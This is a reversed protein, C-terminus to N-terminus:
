DTALNKQVVSRKLMYCVRATGYVKRECVNCIHAIKSKVEDGGTQKIVCIHSQVM